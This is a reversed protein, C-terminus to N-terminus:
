LPTPTKLPKFCRVKQNNIIKEEPMSSLCIDEVLPCRTAFPCYPPLESFHPIRGPIYYLKQPKNNVTPVSEILGKTYPHLPTTFIESTSGKEVIYGSYMILINDCIEKALLLDHTIFIISLSYTEKIEKLINIIEKQITVDLSTTPEDAIIIKPKLLLVLSIVVRQLMGGSLQHPFSKLVREPQHIGIRELIELIEKQAQQYPINHSQSILKLQNEIKLIPNLANLPDQFIIGIEKGRIKRLTEVSYNIHKNNLFVKGEVDLSEPLLGLLSFMTISKGSGSEGVIGLIEKKHLEFNIERVITKETPKHKIKLDKVELIKEM